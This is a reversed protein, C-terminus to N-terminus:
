GGAQGGCHCGAGHEACAGGDWAGDQVVALGSSVALGSKCTGQSIVPLTGAALAGVVESVTTRGARYVTVGDVRLRKMAGGGINAVVAADVRVGGLADLAHCRKGDRTAPNAYATVARTETNVVLLWPASGFHPYVVSELGHDMAVPICAKV